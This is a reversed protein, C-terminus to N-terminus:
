VGFTYLEVNISFAMVLTMTLISFLNLMYISTRVMDSHNSMADPLTIQVTFTLWIWTLVFGSRTRIDVLLFQYGKGPPRGGWHGPLCLGAPGARREEVAM